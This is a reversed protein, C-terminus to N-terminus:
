VASAEFDGEVFDFGVQVVWVVAAGAALSVDFCYAIHQGMGPHRQRTILRSFTSSKIAGKSILVPM